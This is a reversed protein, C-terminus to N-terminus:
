LVLILLVALSAAIGIGGLWLLAQRMHRGEGVESLVERCCASLEAREDPTSLLLKARPLAATLTEGWAERFATCLLRGHATADGDTRLAAVRRAALRALSLLEEREEPVPFARILALKREEIATLREGKGARNQFHLLRDERDLESLVGDLMAVTQPRAADCVPCSGADGALPQSCTECLAM